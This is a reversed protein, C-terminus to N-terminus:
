KSSNEVETLKKDIIAKFSAFPHAGNLIEPNSGDKSNVIVFSPTEQFGLSSALAVDKEVFSKYKQNDFCSNFKDMDLEPIKAAFKKLNEKSVWGSDIPKQNKYLLQHFDWFSGQDNTCQAAIAPNMSDFGRNPLHKFVLVVKDTQIYTQNILPETAKVYRACLYCQFDSFDIITIPASSPNGLYPSGQQLLNSLSLNNKVAQEEQKELISAFVYYNNTKMNLISFPTSPFSIVIMYSLVMVFSATKAVNFITENLKKRQLLKRQQKLM